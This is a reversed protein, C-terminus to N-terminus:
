FHLFHHPLSRNGQLGGCQISIIKSDPPFYNQRLLDFTAFISKANYVFDTPLQHQQWIANMFDFLQQSQKAYGGFHYDNLLVYNKQKEETTLLASVENILQENGKMVNIGIIQQHPLAAKIFGAMMTGSGVAAIIHTYNHHIWKFITAAGEAGKIGYGGENIWYWNESAYKRQIYAKDNYATRDVFVLQMGYQMADQLTHSLIAPQEGRIFGMSKLGLRRCAFATAVIHNSYAGGFTAITTYQQQLAESLYLKLKFFKNGSIIPHILDLRLVDFLFEKKESFLSQIFVKDENILTDPM